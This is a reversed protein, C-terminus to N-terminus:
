WKPRKQAVRLTDINSQDRGFLITMASRKRPEAQGKSKNTKKLTVDDHQLLLPYFGMLSCGCKALINSMQM